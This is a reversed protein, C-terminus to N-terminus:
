NGMGVCTSHVSLGASAGREGQRVVKATVVHSLNEGSAIVKIRAKLLEQPPPTTPAPRGLGHLPEKIGHKPQTTLTFM